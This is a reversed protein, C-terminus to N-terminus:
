RISPLIKVEDFLLLSNRELDNLTKYVDIATRLGEAESGVDKFGGINSSLTKKSPLALHHRAERYAARSAFFFTLATKVTEMSYRRNGPSTVLLELQEFAFSLDTGSETIESQLDDVKKRVGDVGSIYCNSRVLKCVLYFIGYRQYSRGEVAVSSAESPEFNRGTPEM